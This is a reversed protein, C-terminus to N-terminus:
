QLCWGYHKFKRYIDWKFPDNLYTIGADERKKILLQYKPENLNKPYLYIKEIATLIDSDQEKILNLLANTKRSGYGGVILIRYPHDLICPWKSNHEANNENTIIDFNIINKM